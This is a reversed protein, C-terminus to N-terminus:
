LYKKFEIKLKLFHDSGPKETHLMQGVLAQFELDVSRLSLYHGFKWEMGADMRSNFRHLKATKICSTSM